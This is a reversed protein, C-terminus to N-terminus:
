DVEKETREVVAGGEIKEVAVIRGNKIHVREFENEPLPDGEFKSLVVVEEIKFKPKDEM